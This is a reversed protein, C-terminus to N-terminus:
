QRLNEKFSLKVRMISALKTAFLDHVWSEASPAFFKSHRCPISSSNLHHCNVTHDCRRPVVQALETSLNWQLFANKKRNKKYITIRLGRSNMVQNCLEQRFTQLTQLPLSTLWKCWQLCTITHQLRVKQNRPSSHLSRQTCSGFRNQDFIIV